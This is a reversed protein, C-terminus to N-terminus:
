KEQPQRRPRGVGPKRDGMQADFETRVKPRQTKGHGAADWAAVAGAQNPQATNAIYDRVFDPIVGRVQVDASIGAVSALRGGGEEYTQMTQRYRAALAPIAARLEAVLAPNLRQM